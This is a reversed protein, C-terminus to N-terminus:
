KKHRTQPRDRYGHARLCSSEERARVSSDHTRIGCLAHINLTHKHQGRNLYRGQSPSIVRGTLGVIWSFHKRFQTLPRPGSHAPLALSFSFFPRYAPRMTIYLISSLCKLSALVRDRNAAHKSSACSVTSASRSLLSVTRKKLVGTFTFWVVHRWKGSAAMRWLWRWLFSFYLFFLM